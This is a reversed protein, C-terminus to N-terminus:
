WSSGRAPEDGAVAGPMREGLAHERVEAALADGEVVDLEVRLPRSRELLREGLRQPANGPALDDGVALERREGPARLAGRAAPVNQASFM